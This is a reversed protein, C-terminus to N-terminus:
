RRRTKGKAGVGGVEDAVDTRKELPRAEPAVRALLRLAPQPEVDAGLGEAAAVAM